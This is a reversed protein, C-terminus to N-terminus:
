LSKGYLSDLCFLYMGFSDIFSFIETLPTNIGNELFARFVYLQKLDRRNIYEMKMLFKGNAKQMVGIIIQYIRDDSIHSDYYTTTMKALFSFTSDKSDIFELKGFRKYYVPLKHTDILNQLTVM